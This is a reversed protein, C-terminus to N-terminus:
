GLTEDIHDAAFQGRQGTQRFERIISVVIEDYAQLHIFGVPQLAEQIHVEADLLGGDEVHADVVVVAGEVEVAIEGGKGVVTRGIGITLDVEGRGGVGQEAIDIDGLAGAAVTEEEGKLGLGDVVVEVRPEAPVVAFLGVAHAAFEVGDGGEVAVERLLGLGVDAHLGRVDDEVIGDPIHFGGVDEIGFVVQEDVMEVDVVLLLMDGDVATGALVRVSPRALLFM